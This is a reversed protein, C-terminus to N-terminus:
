DLFCIDLLCEVEGLSNKLKRQEEFIEEESMTALQKMNEEHIKAYEKVAASTGHLRSSQHVLGSGTVISVSPNSDSLVGPEDVQMANAEATTSMPCPEQEKPPLSNGPTSALGFDSPTCRAFQQAFLSM